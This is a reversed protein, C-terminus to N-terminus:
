HNSIRSPTSLWATVFLIGLTLDSLSVLANRLPIQHLVVLTALTAVFGFKELMAIPMLPRYRIPDSAIVLFAIQWVVAVTVASFYFEPHTIPPPYHHSTWRLTFYMPLLIAFGFIGAILFVIRAFRM